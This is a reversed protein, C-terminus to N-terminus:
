VGAELNNSTTDVEPLPQANKAMDAQIQSMMFAQVDQARKNMDNLTTNVMAQIEELKFTIEKQLQSYIQQSFEQNLISPLLEQAIQRVQGRIVKAENGM